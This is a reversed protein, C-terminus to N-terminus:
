TYAGLLLSGLTEMQWSVTDGVTACHVESIGPYQAALPCLNLDPTTTDYRGLDLVLSPDNACDENPDSQTVLIDGLLDSGTLGINGLDAPQGVINYFVNRVFPEHAWRFYKIFIHRNRNTDLAYSALQIAGTFADQIQLINVNGTDFSADIAPDTRKILRHINPPTSFKSFVSTITHELLLFVCLLVLLM